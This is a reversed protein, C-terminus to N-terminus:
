TPKYKSCGMERENGQTGAWFLGPRLSFSIRWWVSQGSAAQAAECWLRLVVQLPFAACHGQPMASLKSTFNPLLVKLTLMFLLYQFLWYVARNELTHEM